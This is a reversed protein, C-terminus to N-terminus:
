AAAKLDDRVTALADIAEQKMAADIEHHSFKALEFLETLAHAAEARVNLERLMRGLYELPAEHALRGLGYAALVTEMRAYARIVARRPDDHELDDLTDSLVTTLEDALMVDRTRLEHRPRRVMLMVAAGGAVGAVVVLWWEIQPARRDRARADGLEEPRPPGFVDSNEEEEEAPRLRFRDLGIYGLLTLVAFAVVLTKFRSVRDLKVQGRMGRVNAVALIILAVLLILTITVAYDIATSSIERPGEDVGWAGSRSGLAVLALLGLLTAAILTKRMRGNLRM